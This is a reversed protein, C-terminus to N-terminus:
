RGVAAGATVPQWTAPQCGWCDQVLDVHWSAPWAPVQASCYGLELHLDMRGPRLLAPDLVNPQNTTFIFIRQDGCASRLGDCFNLIGGLTPGKPGDGEGDSFGPLPGAGPPMRFRNRPAKRRGSAPRPSDLQALRNDLGVTDIDEVVVIARCAVLTASSVQMLKQLEIFSEDM